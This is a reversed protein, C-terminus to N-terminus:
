DGWGILPSPPHTNAESDMVVAFFQGFAALVIGTLVGIFIVGCAVLLPLARAMGSLEHVIVVAAVTGGV